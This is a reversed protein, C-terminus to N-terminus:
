GRVCRHDMRRGWRQQRAPRTPAKRARYGAAPVGEEACNAQTVGAAHILGQRIGLDSSATRLCCVSLLASQEIGLEIGFPKPISCPYLQSRRNVSAHLPELTGQGGAQTCQAQADVLFQPRLAPEMEASALHTIEEQLRQADGVGVISFNSLEDLGFLLVGGGTRNAFASFPEFLRRPTGRRAAKVEVNALESQRKQVDAILQQLESRTM